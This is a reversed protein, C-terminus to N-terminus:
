PKMRVGSPSGASHRPAPHRRFAVGPPYFGAISQGGRTGEVALRRHGDRAIAARLSTKDATFVLVRRCARSITVYWQKLHTALRSGADSFLVTDVTKGQSAYSTVAYGYNFLRQDPGLIKRRGRDNEVTIRGMVDLARVTVLEGNAIPQDDMSRGNWRLQLRDGPAIEMTRERLVTLRDAYRFSMRSQRGDKFLRLGTDGLGVIPCVDGRTYRGYRRHFFVKMGVTYTGVDRKQAVTLDVSQQVTLEVGRGLRDAKTLAARVATNVADVEAWTQAVILVRDRRTLASLYAEALRERSQDSSHELVWGLADIQDFAEAANGKSAMRVAGRYRAIEKKEVGTRGFDPNQRRITRLKAVPLAANRELLVLADSAAVAGHQRSDGSLIVRAGQARVVEVLRHLDRIGVQGAEDLIIVAREPIKPAVLFQALTQAPLGDNELDIVQQRQPALVMTPRLTEEIGRKIERLTFSKGTGASGRFLTIFARSTLIKEAARRQESSLAAAPVFGPNIASEGQLGARATAVLDMELGLLERSTVEGGDLSFVSPMRALEARLAALRFDQGRGRLLAAALLHHEPVVCSREFVHQEGWSLLATLDASFAPVVAAPRVLTGLVSRETPSLQALWSNRLLETTSERIKRRRNDHAVQSRLAKVNGRLGERAIRAATDADIQERRKSFCRIIEPSVGTIEFNNATTRLVYGFTRLERCLEHEYVSNVFKQAQLMGHTELAKWRKETQDYTANFVICHTHLQPDLERSTDHRFRAVVLNGTAREGRGQGVRVRTQAFRELEALAAAVAREHAAVIRTDQLLAVISVSKPPSMVYDFFIRRNAVWKGNERRVSNRRLNLRAGTGPDNGECLAVFAAEAVVGALKLRAAGEGFWEGAIAPKEAYYQATKLLSFDGVALHVRFYEKANHLDTQPQPSIM